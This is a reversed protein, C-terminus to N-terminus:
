TLCWSLVFKYYERRLLHDSLALACKWYCLYSVATSQQVHWDNISLATHKQKRLANPSFGHTQAPPNVARSPEPELNVPRSLVHPPQLPHNPAACGESVYRYYCDNVEEWQPRNIPTWVIWRNCPWSRLTLFGRACPHNIVTEPMHAILRHIWKFFFFFDLCMEPKFWWFVTGTLIQTIFHRQRKKIWKISWTSTDGIEQGTGGRKGFASISVILPLSAVGLSFHLESICTYKM